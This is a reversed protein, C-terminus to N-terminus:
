LARYSKQAREATQFNIVALQYFLYLRKRLAERGVRQPLKALIEGVTRKGNSRRLFPGEWKAANIEVVTNTPLSVLRLLKRNPKSVIRYLSTTVPYL